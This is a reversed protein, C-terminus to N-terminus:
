FLGKFWNILRTFWSTKTTPPTSEDKIVDINFICMDECDPCDPCISDLISIRLGDVIIESDENPQEGNIVPIEMLLVDDLVIDIGEFSIPNEISLTFNEASAFSVSLLIVLSLLSIVTKNM